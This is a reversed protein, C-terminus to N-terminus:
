QPWRDRVDHERLDVKVVRGNVLTFIKVYGSDDYEESSIYIMTGDPEILKDARGPAGGMDVIFESMPIM